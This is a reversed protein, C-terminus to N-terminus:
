INSRDYVVVFYSSIRIGVYSGLIRDGIYQNLDDINRMMYFSQDKFNPNNLIGNRVEEETIAIIFPDREAVPLRACHVRLQEQM